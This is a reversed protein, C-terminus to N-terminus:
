QAYESRARGRQLDLKVGYRERYARLSTLQEASIGAPRDAGVSLSEILDALTIVSV